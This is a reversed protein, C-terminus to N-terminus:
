RKKAIRAPDPVACTGNGCTDSYGSHCGICVSPALTEHKAAVDKGSFDYVGYLPEGLLHQTVLLVKADEFVGVVTVGDDYPGHKAFADLAKPNVYIDLRTGKGKNLWNYTKITEVYVPPLDAPLPTDAGPIFTEKVKVWERWNAPYEADSRIPKAGISTVALAALAAYLIPKKM